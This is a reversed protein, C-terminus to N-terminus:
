ASAQRVWEENAQDLWALLAEIGLPPSILYGQVFRYGFQRARLLQEATEVGEMVCQLRLNRCLGAIAAVIMRGSDEGTAGAFSRDLKVRDLPLRRLHTLSSFGTGFDDLAVEIGEARLRDISAVAVDFNRMLATETVEFIVRRPDAGAAEIRDLLAQVTDPSCLDQTSLNFAVAVDPPLVAAAQLARDFLAPTLRGMMGLNEAMPIFRDPAVEGLIPSHWRALAEVAVTRMDHVDVVPQFVLNMEAALDATLLAAELVQGSRILQEHEATFLTCSGRSALKGSYLAFDAREFLERSSEGAHPYLAIGVSCGISLTLDDFLYPEGLSACLRHGFAVPDGADEGMLLGFEDGGLRAFVVGAGALRKLRAGVEALLRDGVAHGHVDNVPKFRDLDLMGLAFGAPRAAVLTDLEALFYRRNPLGTLSDVHALRGAERGLQETEAQREILASRSRGSEVFTRFNERVTRLMVLTVLALEGTMAATGPERTWLCYLLHPVVIMAASLTAAQPLYSLCFLCGVLTVAVFLIGADHDVGAAGHLVAMSCGLLAAGIVPSILTAQRLCALAREPSPDVVRARRWWWVARGTGTLAVVGVGGAALIPATSWCLLGVALTNALLVLYVPPIHRACQHFQAVALDPPTGHLTLWRWLRWGGARWRRVSASGGPGADPM